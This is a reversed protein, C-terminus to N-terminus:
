KVKMSPDRPEGMFGRSCICFMTYPTRVPRRCCGDSVKLTHQNELVNVCFRGNGLGVGISLCEGGDGQSGLM